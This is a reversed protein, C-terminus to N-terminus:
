FPKFECDFLLNIIYTFLHEQTSFKVLTANNKTKDWTKKIKM